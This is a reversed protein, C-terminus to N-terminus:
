LTTRRKNGSVQSQYSLTMVNGLNELNKTLRIRASLLLNVLQVNTYNYKKQSHAAHIDDVTTCCYLQLLTCPPLILVEHCTTPVCVASM